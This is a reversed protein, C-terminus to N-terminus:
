RWRLFRESLLIRGTTSDVTPIHWSPHGYHGGVYISMEEAGTQVVGQLPYNARSVWNLTDPGPRVFVGMFTRDYLIRGRSTVFAVDSCDRLFWVQRIPMVLVM